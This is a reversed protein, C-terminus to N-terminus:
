ASSKLASIDAHEPPPVWLKLDEPDPFEKPSHQDHFALELSFLQGDRVFLMVDVKKSHAEVPIYRAVAARPVQDKLRLTVTGCGCDCTWIVKVHDLQERLEDRGPFDVSLLFELLAKEKPLLARHPVLDAM